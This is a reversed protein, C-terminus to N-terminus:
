MRPRMPLATGWARCACTAGSQAAANGTSAPTGCEVYEFIERLTRYPEPLRPTLRPVRMPTYSEGMSKTITPGPVYVGEAGPGPAHRSNESGSNSQDTRAPAGPMPSSLDGGFPYAFDTIVELHLIRWQGEDRIFDGGYREWMNVGEGAKGDTSALIAGPTDWFGKASPWRGGGRHPAHHALSLCRQRHLSQPCLRRCDRSGPCEGRSAASEAHRFERHRLVQPLGRRSLVGFEAGLPDAPAQAV